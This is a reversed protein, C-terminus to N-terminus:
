NQSLRYGLGWVTEIYKTDPDVKKLKSRLNSIHIKVANDDGTYPQRWVAEYLSAKTYIRNRHRMLLSLIMYEKVTLDLGKHNMEVKKISGGSMKLGKYQYLRMDHSRKYAERMYYSEKEELKERDLPLRLMADLPSGQGGVSVGNRGNQRDKAEEPAVEEPEAEESEQEKPWIGLVPVDSFKRVQEFIKQVNEDFCGVAWIIMDFSHNKVMCVLEADAASVVRYGMGALCDEIRVGLPISQEALLITAM